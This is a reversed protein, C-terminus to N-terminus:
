ANGPEPEHEYLHFLLEAKQLPVQPGINYVVVLWDKHCRRDFRCLVEGWPFELQGMLDAAIVGEHFARRESDNPTDPEYFPHSHALLVAQVHQKEDSVVEVSFKGHDSSHLGLAYQCWGTIPLSGHDTASSILAPTLVMHPGFQLM